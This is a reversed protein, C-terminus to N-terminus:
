RARQRLTAHNRATIYGYGLCSALSFILTTKPKREHFRLLMYNVGVATGMKISGFAIPNNSFPALLQNAETCTRAGLCHMTVGYDLASTLMSCGVSVHLAHHMWKSPEAVVPSPLLILLASLLRARM